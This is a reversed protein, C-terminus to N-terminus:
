QGSISRLITLITPILFSVITLVILVIVWTPMPKRFDEASLFQRCHPCQDVDDYIDEHCHPCAVIYDEDENPESDQYM